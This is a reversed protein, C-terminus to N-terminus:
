KKLIVNLKADLEARPIERAIITGDKDILITCPEDFLRYTKIFDIISNVNSMQPWILSDKAMVEKWTEKDSDLWIGIIEFDKDKYKAYADKLYTYDKDSVLGSWKYFHLLVFKKKGVYDSLAIDQGDPTKAEFDTYKTGVAAINDMNKIYDLMEDVRKDEGRKDSFVPYLEKLTKSDADFLEPLNAFYFMGMANDKNEKIMDLLYESDPASVTGINSWFATHNELLASGKAEIYHGKDDITLELTKGPELIILTSIHAIKNVDIGNAVEEQKPGLGEVKLNYMKSKDLKGEFVFQNDKITTSDVIKMRYLDECLYVKTGDAVDKLKGKLTYTTNDQCSILFAFISLILLIKKM